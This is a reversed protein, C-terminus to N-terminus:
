GAFKRGKTGSQHGPMAAQSDPRCSGDRQHSDHRRLVRRQYIRASGEDARNGDGGSSPDRREIKPDDSVFGGTGTADSM